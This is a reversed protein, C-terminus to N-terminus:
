KWRRAAPTIAADGVLRLGSVGRFRDLNSLTPHRYEVKPAGIWTCLYRDHVRVEGEVGIPMNDPFSPLGCQARYRMPCYPDAADLDGEFLLARAACGGRCIESFDCDVDRCAKPLHDRRSKVARFASRRLIDPLEETLLDGAGLETLYVCPSVPIRGELTKAGIRFSSTGCPCGHESSGLVAGLCSEGLSVCRTNHMLFSFGAYFQGVTPAQDRLAPVVPKLTNVRLECGLLKALALFAAVTEPNLTSRMGCVAMGRDIGLEGARQVGLVVARHLAAGRSADHDREYPSDLSFDVDNLLVLADRHNADLWAFSTGNTTLGVVMGAGTLREIIYPLMSDSLRPGHTFAPENGGLNVTQVGFAALKEVICDIDARTLEVSNSRARRSYCHDCSANCYSGVTWGVNKFVAESANPM